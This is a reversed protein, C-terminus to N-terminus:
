RSGSLVLITMSYKMRRRFFTNVTLAMLMLCPRSLLILGRQPCILRLPPFRFARRAMRSRLRESLVTEMKEHIMVGTNKAWDAGVLPQSLRQQGPYRIGVPYLLRLPRLGGIPRLRGVFQRPHTTTTSRTLYIGDRISGTTM